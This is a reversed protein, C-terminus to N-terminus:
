GETSYHVIGLCMLTVTEAGAEKLIKTAELCSCGSTTTDDLLLISKENPGLRRTVEMSDKIRACREELSLRNIGCSPLDRTRRLLLESPTGIIKGLKKSMPELTKSFQGVKSSPMITIIDFKGIKNEKRLANYMPMVYQLFHDSLDVWRKSHIIDRCYEDPRVDLSVYYQPAYANVRLEDYYKPLYVVKSVYPEMDIKWLINGLDWYILTDLCRM